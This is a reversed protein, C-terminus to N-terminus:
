IGHIPISDAHLLARFLVTGKQRKGKMQTGTGERALTSGAQQQHNVEVVMMSLQSSSNSRKRLHLM